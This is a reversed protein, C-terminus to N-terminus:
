QISRVQRDLEELADLRDKLIQGPLLHKGRMNRSRLEGRARTQLTDLIGISTGPIFTTAAQAVRHSFLHNANRPPPLTITVKQNGVPISLKQAPRPLPKHYGFGANALQIGYGMKTGGIAGSVFFREVFDKDSQKKERAALSVQDDLLEDAKEYMKLRRGFEQSSEPDLRAIVSALKTRDADYDAFVTKGVSRLERRTQIGRLKATIASGYRTVLPTLVILAGSTTFGIGAIGALRPKRDAVALLNFLAGIYGGTSAAGLGMFSSLWRGTKLGTERARFRSFELLGSNSLDKLVSGEALFVEREAPSVDATAVAQDRVIIREDIEQALQRVKSACTKGDFGKKRVKYDSWVDLATELLVGGAQISHGLLLLIPGSRLEGRPATAPRRWYNWRVWSVHIIGANTCGFLGENYLFQRWPKWKSQPVSQMRYNTNLRLLEFEKELVSNTLRHVDGSTAPASIAPLQSAMVCLAMLVSLYNAQRVM